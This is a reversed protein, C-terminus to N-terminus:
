GIMIAHARLVRRHYISAMSRAHRAVRFRRQLGGNLNLVGLALLQLCCTCYPDLRWAGHPTRRTAYSRTASGAITLKVRLGGLPCYVASLFPKVM